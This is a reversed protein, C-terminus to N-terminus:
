KILRFLNRIKSLIRFIGTKVMTPLLFVEAVLFSPIKNGSKKAFDVNDKVFVDKKYLLRLECKYKFRDRRYQEIDFVEKFDELKGLSELAILTRRCKVCISCNHASTYEGWHNVCVNLYKRVPPYNVIRATKETRTYQAGDTIIELSDPSLLPNIYQDGLSALDTKDVLFKCHMLESYAHTSSLYYKALVRQFLLIAAARCFVGADFEWYDLYFDFLNSDVKVYPLHISEPFSKLLEYRNNFVVRSNATGGGHSGVNFLFFTSIKYEEDNENEFHDYVTVFSDIGGSFGTGVLRNTKNVNKYGKCKIDVYHMGSRYSFIINQVYNKINFMLKKSVYGDIYIDEGYYMAPYIAAVLIADYVDDTLWDGYEKPVSFWLETSDSFNNEWNCILRAENELTEIRLNSLRM